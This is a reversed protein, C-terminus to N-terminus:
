TLLSRFEDGNLKEKTMLHDAIKHLLDIHEELIEKAKLYGLNIFNSVESDIKSILEESYVKGSEIFSNESTDCFLPGVSSSMGYKTVM